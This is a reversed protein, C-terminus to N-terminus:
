AQGFIRWLGDPLIVCYDTGLLPLLSQGTLQVQNNTWSCNQWDLITPFVDLLSVPLGVERGHSDPTLTMYRKAMTGGSFYALTNTM